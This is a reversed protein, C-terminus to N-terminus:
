QVEVIMAGTNSGAESYSLNCEKLVDLVVKRLNSQKNSSHVGRGAIMARGCDSYQQSFTGIRETCMPFLAEAHAGERM